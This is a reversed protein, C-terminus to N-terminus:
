ISAHYIVAFVAMLVLLLLLIGKQYWNLDKIKQKM